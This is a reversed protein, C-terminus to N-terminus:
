IYDAHLVCFRDLLIYIYNFWSKNFRQPSYDSVYYIVKKVKGFRRLIIGSLTNISELGIFYDYNSKSSFGVFLVSFIDRLKFSIHTKHDNQWQCLLYLPFYFFKSLTWKKYIKKEQYEEIIPNIRDS